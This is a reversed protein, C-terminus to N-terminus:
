RRGRPRDARHAAPLIYPSRKADALTKLEVLLALAQRSLPVIHPRRKKMREQPIQWVAKDFDVEEWRGLRM